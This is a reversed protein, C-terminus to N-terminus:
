FGGAILAFVAGVPDLASGTLSDLGLLAIGCLALLVCLADALSRSLVAALLLPGLFEITIATGLPIRGIAAYFFGNMLGLSAGFLVVAGWQTRTWRSVRPRVLACLLMGATVLRVIATGWTSAVPFLQVALAAGLQLSICSGIICLIEKM